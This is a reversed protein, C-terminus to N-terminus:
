YNLFYELMNDVERAIIERDSEKNFSERLPKSVNMSVDTFHTSYRHCNLPSFVKNQTITRIGDIILCWTAIPKIAPKM